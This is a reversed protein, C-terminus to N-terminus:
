FPHSFPPNTNAEIRIQDGLCHRLKTPAGGDGLSEHSSPFWSRPNETEEGVTQSVFLFRSLSLSLSPPLSLSNPFVIHMQGRAWFRNTFPRTPQNHAPAQACGHCGCGANIQKQSEFPYYLDRNNWCSLLANLPQLVISCLETNSYLLLPKQQQLVISFIHQQLVTFM